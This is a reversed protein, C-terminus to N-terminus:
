ERIVADAGMGPKLAHDSSNDIKVKVRFVETSRQDQTAINKPTFEARPSIFSVTGTFVRGPFSDVSVDAHEGLAVRGIRDEPIYISLTVTELDAIHYVPSGAPAMEGLHLLREVVLGDHPAKLTMKNLQARASDRAAKAQAVQAEAAAINEPRTGAQVADLKTQALRVANDATDLQARAADVQANLTLPNAQMALLNQVDARAGDRQASATNLAAWASWEKSATAALQNRLDDTRINLRKTIVGHPTPIEVVVGNEIDALTRSYYDRELTAAQALRAAANVRHEAAALAAQAAHIRATLDQPNDRLAAADALAVKAGDRTATAQALAARAQAIEEPRAGAKLKALNAQAAALGADAQEVQSALLASDLRALVQGTHVTDGEAADLEMVRGPVDGAVMYDDAEIYGSGSLANDSSSFSFSGRLLFWAAAIVLALLVPLLVLPPRRRM